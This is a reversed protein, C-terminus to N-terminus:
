AGLTANLGSVPSVTAAAAPLDTSRHSTRVGSLDGPAQVTALTDATDGEARVSSRKGGSGAGVPCHQQPVGACRAPNGGEHVAVLPLAADAINSEAGVPLHEGGGALETRYQEPVGAGGELEALRECTVLPRDVTDGETGRRLDSAAAPSSPVTRM